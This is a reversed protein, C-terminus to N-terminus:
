GLKAKDSAIIIDCMMALELGGGFAYGNVAAILPKRFKPIVRYWEREFYDDFMHSSQTCNGIENINAGTAFSPSGIKGTLIVV